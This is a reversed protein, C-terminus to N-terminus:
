KLINMIKTPDIYLHETIYGRDAVITRRDVGMLKAVDRYMERVDEPATPMIEVLLASTHMFLLNAVNAGHPMVIIDVSNFLKAAHSMNEPVYQPCEKVTYKRSLAACIDHANIIHRTGPPRNIVIATKHDRGHHKPVKFYALLRRSYKKMAYMRTEINLHLPNDDLPRKPYNDHTWISRGSKVNICVARKIRTTETGHITLPGRAITPLLHNYFGTIKGTSVDVYKRFEKVHTHFAHPGWWLLQFDKPDFHWGFLEALVWTHVFHYELFTHAFCNHFSDSIIVTSNVLADVHEPSKVTHNIYGDQNIYCGKHSVERDFFFDHGDFYVDNYVCYDLAIGNITADTCMASSECYM